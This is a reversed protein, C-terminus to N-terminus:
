SEPVVMVRTSPAIEVMRIDPAFYDVHCNAPRYGRPFVPLVHNPTTGYLRSAFKLM